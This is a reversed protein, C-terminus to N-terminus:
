TCIAGAPGGSKSGPVTTISQSGSARCASSPRNSSSTKSSHFPHQNTRTPSLRYHQLHANKLPINSVSRLPAGEFLQTSVGTFAQNDPSGSVQFRFCGISVPLGPSPSVLHAQPLGQFMSCPVQFGSVQLRWGGPLSPPRSLPLRPSGAAVGSVHFRSGPVKFLGEYLGTKEM